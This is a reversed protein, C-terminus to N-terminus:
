KNEDLRLVPQNILAVAARSREGIQIRDGACYTDNLRAPQWQPQGARQVEVNGQVSVMRAVPPDCPTAAPSAAPGLLLLLLATPLILSSGSASTKPKMIVVKRHAAGHIKFLVCTVGSRNKM